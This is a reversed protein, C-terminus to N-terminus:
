HFSISLKLCSFFILKQTGAKKESKALKAPCTSRFAALAALYNNKCQQLLASFCPAQKLVSPSGKSLKESSQGIFSNL